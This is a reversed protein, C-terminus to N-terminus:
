GYHKVYDAAQAIEGIAKGSEIVATWDEQNDRCSSYYHYYVQYGGPADSGTAIVAQENDFIHPTPIASL